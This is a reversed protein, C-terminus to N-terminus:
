PLNFPKSKVIAVILDAMRYENQKLTEVLDDVVPRDALTLGRGLAYTLMKAVFGHVFLEQRNDRLLTRFEDVDAVSE